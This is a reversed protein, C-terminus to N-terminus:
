RRQLHSREQCQYAQGHIDMYSDGDALMTLMKMTWAAHTSVPKEWIAVNMYQGQFGLAKFGVELGAPVGACDFVIHMGRGDTATKCHQVVDDTVPNYAATVFEKVQERRKGAPESVIIKEAGFARLAIILALGVPGGGIVLIDKDKWDSLKTEKIAHVVVALPEIVAADDLSVNDPLKHLSTELVAAREGFGGGTHYGHYGLKECAHTAGMECPSCKRCLIRPDVMVADGDKLGSGASPNRVRGCFEHGMAVPLKEGTLPHPDKRSASMPGMVYEHLDSGCIGCWAIDVIVHGDKVTPEDIQEVRIDERDHFRAARM